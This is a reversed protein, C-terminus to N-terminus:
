GEGESGRPMWKGHSRVVLPMECASMAAAPVGRGRGRVRPYLGSGRGRGRGGPYAM